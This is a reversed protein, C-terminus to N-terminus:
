LKDKFTYLCNTKKKNIVVNERNKLKKKIVRTLSNLYLKINLTSM